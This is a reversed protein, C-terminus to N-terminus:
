KTGYSKVQRQLETELSLMSLNREMDILLLGFGAATKKSTIYSHMEDIETVAINNSSQLQKVKNGFVRIWNYVSVHSVKLVRGISRFGLGELYLQLAQRKLSLPYKDRGKTYNYHCDRCKCRQMYVKAHRASEWEQM